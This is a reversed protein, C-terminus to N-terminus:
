DFEIRKGKVAYGGILKGCVYGGYAGTVITIPWRQWERDWDLPIPVAGLWAGVFCGLTAGFVEDLPLMAAIADRWRPGDVGLVYTLPLVALLTFHCAALITHTLHTTLPAGFLIMVVTLTPVGMVSSLLTSLLAHVIKTNLSGNAASSKRRSAPKKPTKAGAPGAAPLCLVAYAIQVAALVPLSIWLAEVPDAVLYQFGLYYATLLLASHVHTALRALDTNLVEVPSAREVVPASTTVTSTM